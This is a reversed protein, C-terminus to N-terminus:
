EREKEENGIQLEYRDVKAIFVHSCVCHKSICPINQNMSKEKRDDEELLLSTSQHSCRPDSPLRLLKSFEVHKTFAPGSPEYFCQIINIYLM